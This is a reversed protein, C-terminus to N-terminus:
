CESIDEMRLEHRTKNVYIMRLGAEILKLIVFFSYNKICFINM